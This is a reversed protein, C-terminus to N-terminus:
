IRDGALGPAGGDIYGVMRIHQRKKVFHLHIDLISYIYTNSMTRMGFQIDLLFCTTYPYM